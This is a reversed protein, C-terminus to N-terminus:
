RLETLEKLQAKLLPLYKGSYAKIAPDDSKVGEDFIGVTGKQEKVIIKLFTEDFKEDTAAELKAMNENLDDSFSQNLGPVGVRKSSALTNLDAGIANYNDQLKAAANKVATNKSKTVALQSLKLETIKAFSVLQIFRQSYYAGSKKSKDGSNFEALQSPTPSPGSTNATASIALSEQSYNGTRPTGPTNSSGVISTMYTAITDNGTPNSGTTSSLSSCAQAMLAVSASMVVCSFKNMIYIKWDVDFVM